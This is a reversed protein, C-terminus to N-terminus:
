LEINTSRQAGLGLASPVGAVSKEAKPFQASLMDRGRGKAGSDPVRKHSPSPQLFHPQSGCREMTKNINKQLKLMDKKWNRSLFGVHMTSVVQIVLTNHPSALTPIPHNRLLYYPLTGVITLNNKKALSVSTFFNNM